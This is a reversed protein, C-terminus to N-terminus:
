AKIKAKKAKPRLSFISNSKNALQPPKLVAEINSLDNVHNVHQFNESSKSKVTFSPNLNGNYAPMTVNDTSKNTVVQVVVPEGQEMNKINLNSITLQKNNYNAALQVISNVSTTIQRDSGRLSNIPEATLSSRIGVSVNKNSSFIKNKLSSLHRSFTNSRELSKLSETGNLEKNEKSKKQLKTTSARLFSKHENPQKKPSKSNKTKILTPLLSNSKYTDESEFSSQPTNKFYLDSTQVSEVDDFQFVDNNHILSGRAIKVTTGITNLSTPVTPPTIIILNSTKTEALGNALPPKDNLNVQISNNNADDCQNELVFEVKPEVNLQKQQIPEEVSADHVYKLKTSAISPLPTSSSSEASKSQLEHM